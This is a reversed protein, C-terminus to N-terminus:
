FNSHACILLLKISKMVNSMMKTGVPVKINLKLSLMFMIRMNLFITFCKHHDEVDDKDHDRGDDEHGHSHGDDEDDEGLGLDLDHWGRRRSCGVEVGRKRSSSRM